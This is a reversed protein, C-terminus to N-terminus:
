QSHRDDNPIGDPRRHNRSTLSDLNYTKGSFDQLKQFYASKIKWMCLFGDKKMKNEM